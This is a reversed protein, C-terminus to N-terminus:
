DFKTSMQRILGYRNVRFFYERDMIGVMKPDVEKVVRKAFQLKTEKEGHNVLVLKLDSFGKLFEIMEDAKAHASFETTYVVDANKKRIISGINVVDGKETSKLRNGLTGEATYGTFLILCNKRSIYEPIYLQAPGYTGMGSTTVIIKTALSELVEKRSGRDVMELNEPLFNKMQDNIGLDGKLYLNTYQHALKGDFYIPIEKSLRGDEQMCKLVYLIEQARGLSFVMSIATGENSTCRIINDDFTKSMETSDMTGYTSEQIVIIPLERVWTPLEPVDFFMNNKNYDGTFLLNIDEYGPYSIQVLILAAGILHGNKFFTAQIRNNLQITESFPCGKFLKITNSVDAQSYLENVYNRKSVDKLVKYSDYLALPAMTATASTSYINGRFGKKFLLPLRGTHDVHNHTILCFEIKSADFPFDENLKSYEREQFLGCDVIFRSTEGDPYKPIIMFLSGTVEPHVAMIDVYFREKSGM